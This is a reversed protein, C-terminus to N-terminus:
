MIREIRENTTNTSEKGLCYHHKAKEGRSIHPIELILCLLMMGERKEGKYWLIIHLQLYNV